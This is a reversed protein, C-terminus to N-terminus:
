QMDPMWWPKLKAYFVIEGPKIGYYTWNSCANKPLFGKVLVEEVSIDLWGGRQRVNCDIYPIRNPEKGVKPGPVLQFHTQGKAVEIKAVGARDTMAVTSNRYDDAWEFTVNRGAIPKGTNANVLHVTITQGQATSAVALVVWVLFGRM